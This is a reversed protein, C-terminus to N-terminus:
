GFSFFVEGPGVVGARLDERVLPAAVRPLLQRPVPALAVEVVLAVPAVREALEAVTAVEVVVLEETVQAAVVQETVEAVGVPQVLVVARVVVQAVVKALLVVQALLAAAGVLLEGTDKARVDVELGVLGAHVAPLQALGRGLLGPRELELEGQRRPGLNPIM